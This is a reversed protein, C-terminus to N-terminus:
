EHSVGEEEQKARWLFALGIVLLVVGIILLNGAHKQYPYVKWYFEIISSRHIEYYTQAFIGGALFIAGLVTGIYGILQFDTKKL